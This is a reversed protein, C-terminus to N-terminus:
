VKVESSYEIAVSAKSIDKVFTSWMVLNKM